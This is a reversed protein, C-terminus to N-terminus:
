GKLTVDCIVSSSAQLFISTETAVRPQFITASSRGVPIVSEPRRGLPHVIETITTNVRVGSLVFERKAGLTDIRRWLDVFEENLPAHVGDYQYIRSM